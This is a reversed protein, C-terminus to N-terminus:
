LVEKMASGCVTYVCIALYRNTTITNKQYKLGIKRGILYLSEAGTTTWIFDPPFGGKRTLCPKGGM